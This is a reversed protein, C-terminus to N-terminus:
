QGQRETRAPRVQAARQDLETLQKELWLRLEELGEETVPFIGTIEPTSLEYCLPGTWVEAFLESGSDDGGERQRPTIHYSARGLSGSWNNGLVWHSLTPLYLSSM